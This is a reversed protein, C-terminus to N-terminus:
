NYSKKKRLYISVCVVAASMILAIFPLMLNFDGSSPNEVANVRIVYSFEFEGYSVTIEYEGPVNMDYGSCMDETIDIYVIEGNDYEIKIKGGDSNFEDGQNFVKQSPAPNMEARVASPAKVEIDFTLDNVDEWGQYIVQVTKTGATDTDPIAELMSETVDIYTIDGDSWEVKLQAGDIEFTEGTWYTLKDAPTFLTVNDIEAANVIIDFTLDNVDEWGQYIVQVTKTGATDTDPIAELMSETVDLYDIDGNSWEVKLQAGDIEFTEGTWYTLKDAPTFLTVNDVAPDSVTIDFTLDNVYEWNQYKIQVTKTGATDTDPIAELMSETVDIYDIDGNSWEVKLQAGDIEFTEGTWYTLKDAPAYLTVNKVTKEGSTDEIRIVGATFTVDIPVGNCDSINAANNDKLQIEVPYVGPQADAAVAFALNFMKGDGETNYPTRDRDPLTDNSWLFCDGYSEILWEDWYFDTEESSAANVFELTDKDYSLELTFAAVGTNNKISLPLMVVSGPTTTVDGGYINPTTDGTVTFMSFGMVFVTLALILSMYKIKGCIKKKM